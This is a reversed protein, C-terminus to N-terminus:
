KESGLKRMVFGSPNRARPEKYELELYVVQQDMWQRSGDRLLCPTQLFLDSFLPLVSQNKVYANRRELCFTLMWRCCLEGFKMGQFTAGDSIFIPSRHWFVNPLRNPGQTYRSGRYEKGESLLLTDWSAWLVRLFNALSQFNVFIVLSVFSGM